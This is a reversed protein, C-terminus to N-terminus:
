ADVVTSAYYPHTTIDIDFLHRMLDAATKNAEGHSCRLRDKIPMAINCQWSWAFDPDAALATKLAHLAVPVDVQGATFLARHQAEMRDIDAGNYHPEANQRVVEPSQEWLYAELEERTKKLRNISEQSSHRRGCADRLDDLTKEYGAVAMETVLTHKTSM